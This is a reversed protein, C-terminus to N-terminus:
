GMDCGKEHQLVEFKIFFAVADCEQGNAIFWRPRLRQNSSSDVRRNYIRRDRQLDFIATKRIESVEFGQSNWEDIVGQNGSACEEFFLGARRLSDYARNDFAVGEHEVRGVPRFDRFDQRLIEPEAAVFGSPRM